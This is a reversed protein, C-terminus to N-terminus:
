MCTDSLDPPQHVELATVRRLLESSKGAFMPGCILDIRGSLPATM